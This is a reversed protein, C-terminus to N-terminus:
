ANIINLDKLRSDIDSKTKSDKKSKVSPKPLNERTSFYTLACQNKAFLVASDGAPAWILSRALFESHPIRIVMCGEQTWLYLQVHYSFIIRMLRFIM